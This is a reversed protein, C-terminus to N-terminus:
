HSILMSLDGFQAKKVSYINITIMIIGNLNCMALLDLGIADTCRWDHCLWKRWRQDFKIM